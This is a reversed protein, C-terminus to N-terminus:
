HKYKYKKISIYKKGHLVRVIVHNKVFVKLNDFEIKLKGIDLRKHKYTTEINIFKNNIKTIEVPENNKMHFKNMQMSKFPKM